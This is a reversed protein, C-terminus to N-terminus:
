NMRFGGDCFWDDKSLAVYMATQWSNKDAHSRSIAEEELYKRVGEAGSLNYISEIRFFIGTLQVAAQTSYLKNLILSDFHYKVREGLLVPWNVAPKVDYSITPPTTQNVTAILWEDSEINDYYPHLTEEEPKTPSSTSKSKNCDSCSPILNIPTTVLRPYETKPLYHDLTAVMRHSCLPCIGHSSASIIKDYIFRGPKDKKAMRFTYVKELENATVNGNVFEEKNITHVKGTTIKSNFENEAEIILDKCATLRDKLDPNRVISICKLFTDEAQYTPKNLKKM